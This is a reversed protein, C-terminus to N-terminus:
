YNSPQRFVANVMRRVIGELSDLLRWVARELREFPSGSTRRPFKLSELDDRLAYLQQLLLKRQRELQEAEWELDHM